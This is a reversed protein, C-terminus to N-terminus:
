IKEDNVVAYDEVVAKFEVYVTLASSEEWGLNFKQEIHTQVSFPLTIRCNPHIIESIM